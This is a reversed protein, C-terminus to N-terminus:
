EPHNNQIIEPHNQIIKGVESVVSSPMEGMAGPPSEEHTAHAQADAVSRQERPLGLHFSGQLPADGAAQLHRTGAPGLEM